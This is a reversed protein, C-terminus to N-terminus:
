ANLAVNGAFPNFPVFNEPPPFNLRLPRRVIMYESTPTAMLVIRADGIVPQWDSKVITRNPNALARRGTSPADIPHDNDDWDTDDARRKKGPVALGTIIDGEDYSIPAAETTYWGSPRDGSAAHRRFTPKADNSKDHAISTIIIWLIFALVILGPTTVTYLTLDNVAEGKDHVDNLSSLPHYSEFRHRHAIKGPRNLDWM